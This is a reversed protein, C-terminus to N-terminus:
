GISFVFFVIKFTITAALFPFFSLTMEWSM